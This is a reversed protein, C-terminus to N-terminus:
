GSIHLTSPVSFYSVGFNLIEVTSLAVLIGDDVCVMLLGMKEGIVSKRLKM